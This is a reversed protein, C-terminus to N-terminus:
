VPRSSAAYQEQLRADELDQQARDAGKRFSVDMNHVVAKKELLNDVLVRFREAHAPDSLDWVDYHSERAM